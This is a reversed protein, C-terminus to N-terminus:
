NSGTRGKAGADILLGEALKYMGALSRSALSEPPLDSWRSWSMRLFDLATFGRVDKMNVDAGADLLMEVHPCAVEEVFMGWGGPVGFGKAAAILATEGSKDWLNVDAGNEILAEVVETSGSEAAIMLATRCNYRRANADAGEELLLRVVSSYGRYSATHLLKDVLEDEADVRKRIFRRISKRRTLRDAAGGNGNEVAYVFNQKDPTTLARLFEELDELDIGVALSLRDLLRRGVYRWLVWLIFLVAPSLMGVLAITEWNKVMWKFIADHASNTTLSILKAAGFLAAAGLLCWFGISSDKDAGPLPFGRKTRLGGSWVGLIGFFSLVAGALLLVCILLVPAYIYIVIAAQTPFLTLAAAIALIVICLGLIKVRIRSKGNLAMIRVRGYPMRHFARFVILLVVLAVEIELRRTALM